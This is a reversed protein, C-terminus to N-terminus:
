KCPKSDLGIFCDAAGFKALQFTSNMNQGLRVTILMACFTPFVFFFLMKGGINIISIYNLWGSEPADNLWDISIILQTLQQHDIGRGRVRGM